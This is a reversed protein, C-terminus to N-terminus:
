LGLLMVTAVSTVILTLLQAVLVRPFLILCLPILIRRYFFFFPQLVFKNEKEDLGDYASHWKVSFEKETLQDRKCFLFLQMGLPYLVMFASLTIASASNISQIDTAWSIATMNVICCIAVVSYQTQLFEIPRSWFYSHGFSRDKCSNPCCKILKNVLVLCIMILVQQGAFLLISGLNPILLTSDFGLSELKESISSLLHNSPVESLGGEQMSDSIFDTPIMDFAAVSLLVTFVAQANAPASIAFLPM